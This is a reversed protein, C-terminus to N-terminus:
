GRLVAVVTSALIRLDAGLTRTRSYQVDLAVLQEVDRIDSVSVKSVQALGTIGPLVQQRERYAVFADSLVEFVAPEEPRPGVLNMDGRLVNLLQPLEELSTARLFRGVRTLEPVEADGGTADATTRFTFMSFIRGGFDVTRRDPVRGLDQVRRDQGVRPRRCLVPGRSSLKILLAIWAFLPALFVLAVGAVFVSLVRTVRAGPPAQNELPGRTQPARTVPTVDSPRNRVLEIVVLERDAKIGWLRDLALARLHEGVVVLLVIVAAVAPLIPAFSTWGTAWGYGAAVVSATAVAVSASAVRYLFELFWERPTPPPRVRHVRGRRLTPPTGTASDRDKAPLASM